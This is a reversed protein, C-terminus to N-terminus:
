SAFVANDHFLKTDFGTYLKICVVGNCRNIRGFKNAIDFFMMGVNREINRVIFVSFRYSHPTQNGLM